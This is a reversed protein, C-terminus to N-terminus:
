AAELNMYFMGGARKFGKRLYLNDARRDEQSVGMDIRRVKRSKCWKLFEDVLRNGGQDAVFALDTACLCPSFPMHYIQGILCGAVDGDKLALFVRQNPDTMADKITRRAIVSNWGMESMNSQMFKQRGFDLISAIDNLTAKRIVM